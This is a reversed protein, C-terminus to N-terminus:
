AGASGAARQARGHRERSLDFICPHCHIFLPYTSNGLHSQDLWFHRPAAKPLLWFWVIFFFIGLVDMLFNRYTFGEQFFFM